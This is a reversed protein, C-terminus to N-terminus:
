QFVEMVARTTSDFDKNSFATKIKHTGDSVYTAGDKSYYGTHYGDWRKRTVSCKAKNVYDIAQELTCGHRAAHSDYFVLGATNIHKPPVRVSGIIGTAKVAKYAKYDSVTAEPVRGKYSYLGCLDNYATPSDYKLKQFAEFTRPAEKGLRAKYAEFQKKDASENYGMKRKLDVTGAGHLEDQKAKWQEYTM